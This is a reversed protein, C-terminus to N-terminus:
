ANQAGTIELIENELEQRTVTPLFDRLVVQCLDDWIKGMETQDKSAYSLSDAVIMKEGNKMVIVSYYGAACVLAKRTADFSPYFDQNAHVLGFLAFVKRHFMPNRPRKIRVMVTEEAGIGRLVEDGGADIPRLAGLRKKMLIETSM